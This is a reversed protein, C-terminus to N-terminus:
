SLFRFTGGMFRQTQQELGVGCGNIHPTLLISEDTM